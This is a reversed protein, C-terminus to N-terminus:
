DSSGRPPEASLAEPTWKGEAPHAEDPGPWRPFTGILLQLPRESTCRFQFGTHPPITAARGPLLEVLEEGVDPAGRWLEGGGDLVYWIEDVSRHQQAATPGPSALQCHALGGEAIAILQRIESRDPALYDPYFRVDQVLWQTEPEVPPEVEDDANSQDWHEASSEHWAEPRFEPMTAVLLRLPEGGSRYQYNVGPPIGVSRGKRLRTVEDV